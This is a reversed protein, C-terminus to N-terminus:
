IVKKKPSLWKLQLEPSPYIKLYNKFLADSKIFRDIKTYLRYYAGWLEPTAKLLVDVDKTVLFQQQFNYGQVLVVQSIKKLLSVFFDSKIGSKHFNGGIIDKDLNINNIFYGNKIRFFDELMLLSIDVKTLDLSRIFPLSLLFIIENKGAPLAYHSIIPTNVILLNFRVNYYGYKELLQKFALKVGYDPKPFDWHLIQANKVLWMESVVKWFDDEGPYNYREIKLKIKEKKINKVTTKNRKQVHDIGDNELVKQINSYDIIKDEKEEQTLSEQSFSTQILFFLILALRRNLKM